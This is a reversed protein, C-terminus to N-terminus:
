RVAQRDSSVAGWGTGTIIPRRCIPCQMLRPEQAYTVTAPGRVVTAHQVTDDVTVTVVITAGDVRGVFRAPVSPGVAIPYARLMYSGTVDFRGDVGVPVRGSVDGYTCGIHLHMATDGVIMAASDGGWTGLPIFGDSSPPANPASACAAIALAAMTLRARARRAGLMSAIPSSM